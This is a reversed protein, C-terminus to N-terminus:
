PQASASRLALRVHADLPAPAVSPARSLLSLATTAPTLKCCHSKTYCREM